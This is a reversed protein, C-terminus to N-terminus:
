SRIPYRQKPIIPDAHHLVRPKPDRAENPTVRIRRDPEVTDSDESAGYARSDQQPKYPKNNLSTREPCKLTQEILNPNTTPRIYLTSQCLRAASTARDRPLLHLRLLDESVDAEGLQSEAWKKNEGM